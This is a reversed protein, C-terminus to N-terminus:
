AQPSSRCSGDTLRSAARKLTLRPRSTQHLMLRAGPGLAMVVGQVAAAARALGEDWVGAAALVVVVTAM